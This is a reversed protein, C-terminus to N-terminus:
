MPKVSALFAEAESWGQDTDSIQGAPGRLNMAPVVKETVDIGGRLNRLISFPTWLIGWPIGWWGLVLSLACYPLCKTLTSEGPRVFYISSNRRLSVVFLSIVWQFVVFRGGQAVQANVDAVTLGSVGKLTLSM